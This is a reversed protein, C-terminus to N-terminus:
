EIGYSLLLFLGLRRLAWGIQRDPGYEYVLDVIHGYTAIKRCPIKSLTLYINNNVKTTKTKSM